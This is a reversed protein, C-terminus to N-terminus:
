AILKRVQEVLTAVAFPRTVWWSSRTACSSAYPATTEVVLVTAM